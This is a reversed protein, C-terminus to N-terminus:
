GYFHFMGGCSEELVSVSGTEEGPLIVSQMAEWWLSVVLRSPPAETPKWSRLIEQLTEFGEPGYVYMILRDLKTFRALSIRANEGTVPFSAVNQVDRGGEEEFTFTFERM